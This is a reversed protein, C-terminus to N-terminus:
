DRDVDKIPSHVWFDSEQNELSHSSNEKSREVQGQPKKIKLVVLIKSGIKKLDVVILIFAPLAILTLVTSFLLGWGLSFALPQTFGSEGGIGYAMPFVGGLTTVTTLTIARLRSTAGEHISSFDLQRHNARKLMEDVMILSDNVSVGVTGLLGVLSMMGMPMDHLYLAWVIGMLGFPIPLGVVFPLTISGLILALTFMVLTICLLAVKLAWARSNTEALDADKLAIGYTPFQKSLENVITQAQEKAITINMTDSPKFALDFSFMRKGNKHQITALQTKQTWYGLKTLPVTLGLSNLIPMRNLTNQDIRDDREIETYIWQTEGFLRIQMLEHPVFYSRLQETLSSLTMEHQALKQTDPIFVWKNDFENVEKVLELGMKHSEIKQSIATKLELYDVDEQGSLELTVMDKKSEDQDNMERGVTISEIDETKFGKMKETLIEAMTTKLENPHSVEDSIQLDFRAYRFGTYNRGRNWMQGISTQVADFKERPLTLLYDEIPKVVKETHGLSINEKLTVKVAIREKSINFFFSQQIKNKAIWGSAGLFVILLVAVLYRFRLALSLCVGYFSKVSDFWHKQGHVHPAKKIFDMMHNPLIFFSEFWSMTLSTIIVIPIAYFVNAIESEIMVMPLFAFVTTLITGTVPIMLNQSAQIASQRPSLGKELNEIYRESIIIADDVLIGLVLIMGVVSILDISIGFAYLAILAGCYSIPIGFSAALAIKFNFFITLILMVLVLGFLANNSLIKLQLEIFKPGDAFVKANLGEPLNKNFEEIVVNVKKKLDIADSVIDKRTYMNISPKGNYRYANKIEDVQPVIDAVQSLLVVNGSRNSRIALKKLAEIAEVPRQVEVTVVQENHEVRGIPSFNLAQQIRNRIEAVSIELQSIKKPNLKIYLNQSNMVPAADIMGPIATIRDSLRKALLRHEINTEDFNELAIGMHFVSDVKEQRVELERAQSPLQWLIANVRSRIQEISENIDKHSAHFYVTLRLSGSASTTTMDTVHSLGRLANEVPYALFKEVETASAGPLSMSVHVMQFEFPPILDRKIMTGLTIGALLIFVSILNVVFPRDVFYTILKKM